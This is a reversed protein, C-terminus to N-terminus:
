KPMKTLNELSIAVSELRPREFSEQKVIFLETGNDRGAALIAPIDIVGCGIETNQTTQLNKRDKIHLIKFRGPYQRILAAPDVGCHHALFTELEFFVLAPDTEELLIELGRRGGFEEFEFDHNQYGLRLGKEQLRKGLDNLLQAGRKWGDVDGRCDTPIGPTVLRPCGIQLAYATEQEFGDALVNFGVHASLASLRGQDLVAKLENAPKNFYGAMEVAKFGIEAVKQLTGFFDQESLSHLSYMQLAIKVM